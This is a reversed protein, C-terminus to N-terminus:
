GYPLPDEETIVPIGLDMLLATTVGCGPEKHGQVDVRRLGCSPSGEKFVILHPEILEVIHRVEEAGRLFASTRDHGDADMVRALGKLVKEGDGGLFRCRPRPIGMGGLIEPCATALVARTSLEALRRHPRSSGDYRTSLGALCASILFVRRM